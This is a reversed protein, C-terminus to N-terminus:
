FRHFDSGTKLHTRRNDKEQNRCIFDRRYLDFVEIFGGNKVESQKQSWEPRALLLIM